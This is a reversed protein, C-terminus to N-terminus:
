NIVVINSLSILIYQMTPIVRKHECVQTSPTILRFHIKLFPVIFLNFYPFAELLKLPMSINSIGLTIHVFCIVTCIQDNIAQPSGKTM